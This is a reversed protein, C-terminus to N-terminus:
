VDYTLCGGWKSYRDPVLKLIEHTGLSERFESDSGSFKDQHRGHIHLCHKM